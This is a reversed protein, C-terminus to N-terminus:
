WSVMYQNDIFDIYAKINAKEKNSRALNAKGYSAFFECRSGSM